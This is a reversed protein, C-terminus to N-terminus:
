RKKKKKTKKIPKTEPITALPEYILGCDKCVVKQTSKVINTSACEPCENITEIDM